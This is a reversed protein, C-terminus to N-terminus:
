IGIGDPIGRSRTVVPYLDTLIGVAVAPSVFKGDKCVTQVNGGTQDKGMPAYNNRLRRMKQEQLVGIPVVPGVHPFYEEISPSREIGMGSWRVQFVSHVVPDPSRYAVGAELACQTALLHFETRSQEPECGVSGIKFKQRRGAVIGPSKSEGFLKVYEKGRGIVFVAIMESNGIAQVIQPAQAFLPDLFNVAVVSHVDDGFVKTLHVHVAPEGGRRSVIQIGCPRKGLFVPVPDSKYAFGGSPDDVVRDKFLAARTEALAVAPVKRGARVFPKTRYMGFHTRVTRKPHQVPVVKNNLMIGGRLTKFGARSINVYVGEPLIGPSPNVADGVPVSGSVLRHFYA